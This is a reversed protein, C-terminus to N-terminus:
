HGLTGNPVPNQPEVAKKSAGSVTVKGPATLKAEGWIVDVKNKKLLFGVGGNLQASVGRSRKM